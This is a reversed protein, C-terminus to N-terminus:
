DRQRREAYKPQTATAGNFIVGRAVERRIKPVPFNADGLQHTIGELGAAGLDHGNGQTTGIEATFFIREGINELENIRAADTAAWYWRRSSHRPLRAWRTQRAAPNGLHTFSLDMRRVSGAARDLPFAPPPRATTCSPM